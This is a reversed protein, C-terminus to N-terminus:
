LSRGSARCLAALALLLLLSAVLAGRDGGGVAASCGLYTTDAVYGDHAPVAVNASVGKHTAAATRMTGSRAYRYRYLDGSAAMQSENAQAAGDLTWDCYVGLVERGDSGRARALLWTKDGDNKGTSSEAAISLGTVDADAVATIPLTGLTAGAHTVALTYGGAQAAQVFLWENIPAGATTKNEVTLQAVAPVTLLGRGYVRESAHFYGVAVVAKGGALVRADALEAQAYQTTAQSGLVRLDGHAFFRASDAARVAIQTAHRESGHADLLRLHASGEALAHGTASLTGASDITPADVAFVAPMDSVLTWGSPDRPGQRVSLGVSTGLAYPLSLNDAHTDLPTGKSLPGGEDDAFYISLSCGNVLLLLAALGRARM